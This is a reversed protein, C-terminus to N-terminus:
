EEVQVLVGEGHQQVQDVRTGWAVQALEPVRQLADHVFAEVHYQQINVMPAFRQTPESPMQFHLVEQDRWFSRGGTWPLAKAALADGAGATALIEQSRRSICIARSGTCYGEDAEVVLSRVGHRALLAALTLGVPGGGAILVPIGDPLTQATAM